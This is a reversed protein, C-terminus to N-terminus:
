GTFENSYNLVPIKKDGNVVFAGGLDDPLAKKIHV